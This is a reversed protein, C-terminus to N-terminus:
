KVRRTCFDSHKELISRLTVPAVLPCQQLILESYVTSICFVQRVLSQNRMKVALHLKYTINGGKVISTNTRRETPYLVFKRTSILLNWQYSLDQSHKYQNEAVTYYLIRNIIHTLGSNAYWLM